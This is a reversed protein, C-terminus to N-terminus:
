NQVSCKFYMTLHAIIRFVESLLLLKLIQLIFLRFGCFYYTFNNFLELFAVKTTSILNIIHISPVFNSTILLNVKFNCM